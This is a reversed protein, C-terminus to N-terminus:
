QLVFQREAGVAERFRDLTFRTATARAADSLAAYRGPDASMRRIIETVAPLDAEDVLYGNRDNEVFERPAGIDPAIVPLGFTMGEILTLGFTEVWGERRTLSVLLDLEALVQAIQPVNFRVALNAPRAGEPFEDAFRTADGNIVLMFQLDPCHRALQVFERYGKHWILSCILGVTFARTRIDDTRGQAAAAAVIRKDVCPYTIHWPVAAFREGLAERVYRSLYVIRDAFTAILFCMLRRHVDPSVRTEMIHAVTTAGKIRAAMLHPATLMTSTHVIDGRGALRLVLLFTRLHWYLLAIGWRLKGAHKRYSIFRHGGPPRIFGQADNTIVFCDEGSAHYAAIKENIIRPSGSFDNLLHIFIHM